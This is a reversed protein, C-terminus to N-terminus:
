IRYSAGVVFSMNIGVLADSADKKTGVYQQKWSNYLNVSPKLMGFVSFHQSFQFDGQILINLGAHMNANEKSNIGKSSDEKFRYSLYDVHFGGGAILRFLGIHMAYAVGIDESVMFKGDFSPYKSWVDTVKKWDYNENKAKVNGDSIFVLDLNDYIVLHNNLEVNFGLGINFGSYKMEPKKQFNSDEAFKVKGSNLTYGAGMNINFELAFLACSALILMFAITITKKM